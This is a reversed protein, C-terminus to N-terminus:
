SNRCHGFVHFPFCERVPQARQQFCIGRERFSNRPLQLPAARTKEFRISFKAARESQLIVRLPPIGQQLPPLVTEEGFGPPASPEVGNHAAGTRVRSTSSGDIIPNEVPISM